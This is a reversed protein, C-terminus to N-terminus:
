ATAIRHTGVGVHLSAHPRDILKKEVIKKYQRLYFVALLKRGVMSM